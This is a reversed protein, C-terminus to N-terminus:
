LVNVWIYDYIYIYWFALHLTKDLPSWPKNIACSASPAVFGQPFYWAIYRLTEHQRHRHEYKRNIRHSMTTDEACDTKNAAISSHQETNVIRSWWWNYPQSTQSSYAQDTWSRDRDSEGSGLDVLSGCFVPFMKTHLQGSCYLGCYFVCCVWQAQICLIIRGRGASNELSRYQDSNNSMNRVGCAGGKKPGDELMKVKRRGRVVRSGDLRTAPALRQIHQIEISLFIFFGPSLYFIPSFFM